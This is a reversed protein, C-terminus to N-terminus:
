GDEDDGGRMLIKSVVFAIENEYDADATKRLESRIWRDDLLRWGNQEFCRAMADRDTRRAVKGAALCLVPRPRVACSGKAVLQEALRNLVVGRLKDDTFLKYTETPQFCGDCFQVGTSDLFSKCEIALVENGEAKYALVDIEWRPSSPRNIATKDERTLDVKFSTATWYGNRRLIQEVVKEFADM